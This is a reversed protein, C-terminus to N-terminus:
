GMAMMGANALMLKVIALNNLIVLKNMFNAMPNAATAAVTAAVPAPTTSTTTSPTTSTTTTTTATAAVNGGGFLGFFIRLAEEDEEPTSSDSKTEYKGGFDYNVLCLLGYWYAFRLLLNDSKLSVKLIVLITLHSITQLTDRDLHPQISFNAKSPPSAKQM